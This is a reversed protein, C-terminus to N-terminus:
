QKKNVWIAPESNLRGGLITMNLLGVLREYKPTLENLNIRCGKVLESTWMDFPCCRGFSGLNLHEVKLAKCLTPRTVVNIALTLAIVAIESPKFRLQIEAKYAAFRCIEKCIQLLKPQNSMGLVHLYRELSILPGAWQVDFQLTSVIFFELDILEKKTVVSRYKEPLQEIM